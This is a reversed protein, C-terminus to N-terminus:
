DAKNKLILTVLTSEPSHVKDLQITFGKKLMTEEGYIFNNEKELIAEALPQFAISRGGLRSFDIFIQAIINACDPARFNKPMKNKQDFFEIRIEQVVEECGSQIIELELPIFIPKKNENISTSFISDLRLKEVANQGKVEFLYNSVLANSPSFLPKPTGFKCPVKGTCAAILILSVFILKRM